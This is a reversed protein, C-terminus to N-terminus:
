LSIDVLQKLNPMSLTKLKTCTALPSISTVHRAEFMDLATLMGCSALAGLDQLPSYGMRLRKLVPLQGVATIDLLSSCGCINLTTLSTCTALASVDELRNAWSLDLSQLM